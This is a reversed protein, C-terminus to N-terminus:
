ARGSSDLSQPYEEASLQRIPKGWRGKSYASKEVLIVFMPPNVPSGIDSLAVNSSYFAVYPFHSLMVSHAFDDAGAEVRFM